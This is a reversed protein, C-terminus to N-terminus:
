ATPSMHNLIGSAVLRVARFKVALRRLLPPGNTSLVLTLDDVALPWALLLLAVYGVGGATATSLLLYWPNSVGLTTMGFHWALAGAGMVLSIVLTPSVAKLYAGPSLGILRLPAALVPYWM